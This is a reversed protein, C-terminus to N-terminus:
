CALLGRAARRHEILEPAVERLKRALSLEVRHDAPLPLDLPHHLDQRAARLVIRDEDTLRADALGGDDLTEGLLDDCTVHRLGDLALLEVGEVEPGEDRTGPVSTVELLAELLNQLLDAGPAVDDQEDVLQVGEDTGPRGFSRDVGSRDQLGHEGTTLELGDTGGSEVLVAFVELLISREFAAELRYLDLLRRKGVGDLDELAQAVAVLGVVPHRDGVLRHHRGCVEGVAVDDSRCRGSLAISRISSAPLRRRM